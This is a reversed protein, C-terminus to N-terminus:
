NVTVRGTAPTVTVITTDDEKSFQVTLAGPVSLGGLPTFQLESDGTCVVGDPISVAAKVNELTDANVIRYSSYPSGPSLVVKYGNGNSSAHTIALSRALKLYGAFQKGATESELTGITGWGFRPVVISALIALITTVVILEILTFGMSAVSPARIVARRRRQKM